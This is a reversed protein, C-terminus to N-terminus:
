CQAGGKVSIGCFAAVINFKAYDEGVTEYIDCALRPDVNYITQIEQIHDVQM